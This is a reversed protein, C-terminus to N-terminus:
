SDSESSTRDASDRSQEALRMPQLAGRDLFTAAAAILALIVIFAAVFLDANSLFSHLANEKASLGGGCRRSFPMSEAPLQLDM